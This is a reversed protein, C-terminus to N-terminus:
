RTFRLFDCTPEFLGNKPKFKECKDDRAIRNKRGLAYCGRWFYCDYCKESDSVYAQSSFFLSSPAPSIAVEFPLILKRKHRPRVDHLFVFFLTVYVRNPKARETAQWTDKQYEGKHSKM